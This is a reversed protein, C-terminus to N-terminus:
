SYSISKSKSKGESYFNPVLNFSAVIRKENSTNPPAFHLLNSPFFIIDGEKVDPVFYEQKDRISDFFPCIFTTPKHLNKDYQIFCVSSFGSSGHTHPGHDMGNNYEQFWFELINFKLCCDEEFNDIESKFINTKITYPSVLTNIAIRKEFSDFLELLQQKKNSWDQVQYHYFPVSFIDQKM